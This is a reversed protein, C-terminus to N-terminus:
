DYSRLLYWQENLCDRYLELLYGSETVLRYYDRQVHDAWWGHDTRWMAVIWRVAHHNGQWRLALPMAEADVQVTIALGDPWHHAM